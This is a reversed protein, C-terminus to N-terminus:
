QTFLVVNDWAQELTTSNGITFNKQGRALAALRRRIVQITFEDSTGPYNRTRIGVMPAPSHSALALGAAWALASVVGFAVM